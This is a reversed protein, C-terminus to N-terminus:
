ASTYKGGRLAAGMGKKKGHVVSSKAVNPTSVDEPAKYSVFGQDKIKEGKDAM